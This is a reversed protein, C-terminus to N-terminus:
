YLSSIIPYLTSVKDFVKSQATPAFIVESKVLIFTPYAGNFKVNSLADTNPKAFHSWVKFAYNVNGQKPYLFPVNTKAFDFIEKVGVQLEKNRDFKFPYGLLDVEVYQKTLKPLDVQTFKQYTPLPLSGTNSPLQGLYYELGDWGLRLEDTVTGSWGIWNKKQMKVSAGIASYVGWSANYFNVRVRRKSNFNETYIEERGRLSEFLNGFWTKAGFYITPISQYIEEDTGTGLTKLNKSKDSLTQLKSNIVKNENGEVRKYTDLLIIKDEIKYFDDKIKNSYFVHNKFDIAKSFINNSLIEKLRNYKEPSIIFTGFPTVKYLIRSV